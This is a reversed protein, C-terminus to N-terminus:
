TSEGKLEEVVAQLAPDPIGRLAEDLNELFSLSVRGARQISEVFAGIRSSREEERRLYEDTVLEAADPVLIREVTGVETDVFAISPQYDKLDAAQRLLCGPNVLRRGTGEEEWDVWQHYDGTFIWRAKPYEDLVDQPHVAGLLKRLSPDDVVLRHLCLIEAEPNSPEEGADAGSVGRTENKLLRVFPEDMGALAVLSGYGSRGALAARHYPLDHNGALIFLPLPDELVWELVRNLFHLPVAPTHFLDGIVWVGDVAGRDKATERIFRLAAMQTEIWEEDTGLRCRPKQARLHLDASLILKM